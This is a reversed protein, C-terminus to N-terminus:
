SFPTGKQTAHMGAHGRARYCGPERECRPIARELAERARDCVQTLAAELSAVGAFTLPEDLHGLWAKVLVAELQGLLARRNM